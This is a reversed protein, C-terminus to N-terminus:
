TVLATNETVDVTFQSVFCLRLLWKDHTGCHTKEMGAVPQTSTDKCELFKCEQLSIFDLEAETSRLNEVNIIWNLTECPDEPLKEGHDVAMM